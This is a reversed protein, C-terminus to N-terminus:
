QMLNGLMGMLGGAKKPGPHDFYRQGCIRVWDNFDPEQELLPSYVQVVKFFLEEQRRSCSEFFFSIFNAAPSAGEKPASADFEGLMARAEQLKGLCAYQLVARAVFLDKELTSSKASWARILTSHEKTCGGARLFYKSALAFKGTRSYKEAIMKNLTYLMKDKKAKGSEEMRDSKTESEEVWKCVAKFYNTTLDPPCNRPILAFLMQVVGIEKESPKESSLKWTDLLDMCISMGAAGRDHEFLQKAGETLLSISQEFNKQVNLRKHFTKLLQEAEYLEGDEFLKQLKKHVRKNRSKKKTSM